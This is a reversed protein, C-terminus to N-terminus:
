WPPPHTEFVMGRGPDVGRVACWERFIRGYSATIYHSEDFGMARATADIWEGAGELELYVGVPTEDLMAVGAERPRGFETRYKDYRLTRELGLRELIAALEPGDATVAEIEERSKHRSRDPVGKYALTFKQDVQRLRLLRHSTRLTEGPWDYIQNSEFVRPHTVGFGALRLLRAAEAASPTAIKVETEINV